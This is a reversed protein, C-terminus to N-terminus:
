KLEVGTALWKLGNTDASSRSFHELRFGDPRQELVEFSTLPPGNTVPILTLEPIGAFMRLYYVDVYPGDVSRIFGTQEMSAYETHEAKLRKGSLRAIDKELGAIIADKNEVILVHFHNTIGLVVAATAAAVVCHTIVPHERWNFKAM